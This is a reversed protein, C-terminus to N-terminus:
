SSGIKEAIRLRNVARALSALARERELTEKRATLRNRAREGSSQARDVDIEDAGEVTEVLLQAREDTVELFGGSTAFYIQESDRSVKVEGISIAFLANIHHAMIGFLGDLGPARLYTVDGLDLERTPTVIDLHFTKM